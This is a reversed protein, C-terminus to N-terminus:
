LQLRRLDPLARGSWNPLEFHLNPVGPRLPDIFSSEGIDIVILKGDREVFNNPSADNYYIGLDNMDKLKKNVHRVGNHMFDPMTGEELDYIAMEADYNYYHLKNANKCGNLNLYRDIQADVFLSDGCYAETIQARTNPFHRFSKAQVKMIYPKSAQQSEPNVVQVIYPIKSSSGDFLPTAEINHYNWPFIKTEGKHFDLGALHDAFDKFNNIFKFEEPPEGFQIPYFRNKMAFYHWNPSIKVLEDLNAANKFLNEAYKAYATYYGGEEQLWETLNRSGGIKDKLMRTIQLSERPNATVEKIFIQSLKEDSTIAFLFEKFNAADDYTKQLFDVFGMGSNHFKEYLFTDEPNKIKFPILKESSSLNKIIQKLNNEYDIKSAIQANKLKTINRGNIVAYTTAAAFGLVSLGSTLLLANERLNKKDEKSKNEKTGSAKFVAQNYNTVPLIKM